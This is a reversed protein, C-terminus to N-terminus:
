IHVLHRVDAPGQWFHHLPFYCTFCCCHNCVAKMDQAIACCVIGPYICRLSIICLSRPIRVEPSLENVRDVAFDVNGSQVAKRIEMRDTIASLDLGPPTGSERAFTDAAEVYGQLIHLVQSWHVELFVIYM